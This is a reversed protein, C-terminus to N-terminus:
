NFKCFYNVLSFFYNFKKTVLKWSKLIESHHELLNFTAMIEPRVKISEGSIPPPM